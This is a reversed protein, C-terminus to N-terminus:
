IERTSIGPYPGKPVTSLPKDRGVFTVPHRGWLSDRDGNGQGEGQFVSFTGLIFCSCHASLLWEGAEERWRERCLWGCHPHCLVRGLIPAGCQPAPGQAEIWLVDRQAPPQAFLLQSGLSLIHLCAGTAIAGILCPQGRLHWSPFLDLVGAMHLVGAQIVCESHGPTLLQAQDPLPHCFTGPCGSFIRHDTPHGKERDKKSDGEDDPSIAM